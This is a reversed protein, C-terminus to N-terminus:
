PVIRVDPPEKPVRAKPFPTTCTENVSDAIESPSEANDLNWDIWVRGRFCKTETLPWEHIVSVEAAWPTELLRIGNGFIMLKVPAGEAEEHPTDGLVLRAYGHVPTTPAAGAFAEAKTMWVDKRGPLPTPCNGQSGVQKAPDLCASIRESEGVEALPVFPTLAGRLVQVHTADVPRQYSWGEPAKGDPGSPVPAHRVLLEAHATGAVALLALLFWKM